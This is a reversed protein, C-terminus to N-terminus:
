PCNVYQLFLFGSPNYHQPLSAFMSTDMSGVLPYNKETNNKATILVSTRQAPTLSIMNVPYEETNVGDVEIIRMEHDEIWIRFTAFAAMNVFRLRYTKSSVFKITTNQSGNMLASQPIPTAGTPNGPSMYSAMIDKSEKHYWDSVDIIIDEDYRYPENPNRIIFPSRLGDPYQGGIHSHIWFTGNQQVTYNYTLSGGAPIPSSNDTVCFRVPNIGNLQESRETMIIQAGRFFDMRM